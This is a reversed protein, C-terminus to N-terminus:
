QMSICRNKDMRRDNQDITQTLNTKPELRLLSNMNDSNSNRNSGQKVDNQLFLKSYFM